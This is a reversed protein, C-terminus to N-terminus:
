GQVSAAGSVPDRAGRLVSEWAAFAHAATFRAELLARANRGMRERTEPESRLRLIQRVM